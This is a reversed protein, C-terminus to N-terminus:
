RHHKPWSGVKGPKRRDVTAIVLMSYMVHTFSFGGYHHLQAIKWREPGAGRGRLQASSTM